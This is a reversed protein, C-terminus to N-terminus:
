SIKHNAALGVYFCTTLIAYYDIKALVINASNVRFFHVENQYVKLISEEVVKRGFRLNLRFSPLLKIYKSRLSKINPSLSQHGSLINHWDQTHGFAM